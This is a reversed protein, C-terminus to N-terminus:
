SLTAALKQKLADPMLECTVKDRWKKLIACCEANLKDEQLHRSHLVVQLLGAHKSM